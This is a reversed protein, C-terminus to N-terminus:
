ARTAGKLTKTIIDIVRAQDNETMDSGSPLCIGTNFRQEAVESGFYPAGSFLPQLHMPKWVPRAEINEAALAEIVADRRARDQLEFVSLWHTAERDDLEPMKKIELAGFAQAYHAYIARRKAVRDPLVELQGRGIGAIVNSMRYNYGVETHQYALGPERAQTSWYRAKDAHAKDECVLLGGGTTTIIKNGNFSFIAHPALTGCRANQYTAGLAEAADEILAIDYRKAVQRIDEMSAPQGYLHVVIAAKIRKGNARAHKAADEFANADMNWSKTESDVFIPEADLYCIPNASAVFTLTPCVVQDGRAVGVLKLALHIAATGSALAVCPRGVYDSFAAEFADLNPGVSSLWNTEFAENVYKIENGGMHPPSLYLRKTTSGDVSM